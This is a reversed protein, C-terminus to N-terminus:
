GSNAWGQGFAFGFGGWGAGGLASYVSQGFPRENIECNTDVSIEWKVECVTSRRALVQDKDSDAIARQTILLSNKQM